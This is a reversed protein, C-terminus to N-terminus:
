LESGPKAEKDPDESELRLDDLLFALPDHHRNSWDFEEFPDSEDFYFKRFQKNGTKKIYFAMKEEEARLLRSLSVAISSFLSRPLM